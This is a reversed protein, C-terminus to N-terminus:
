RQRRCGVVKEDDTTGKEIESWIEMSEQSALKTEGGEGGRSGGGFVESVAVCDDHLASLTGTLKNTIGGGGGGNGGGSGSGSADEYEEDEVDEDDVTGGGSAGGLEQATQASELSLLVARKFSNRNKVTNFFKELKPKSAIFRPNFGLLDLRNLTIGLFIDAAHLDSDGLLFSSCFQESIKDLIQDTEALLKNYEDLETYKRLNDSHSQSKAILNQKAIADTTKSALEELQSSTNRIKNRINVFDSANYSTPSLDPHFSLGENIIEM